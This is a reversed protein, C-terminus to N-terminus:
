VAMPRSNAEKQALYRMLIDRLSILGKLEKGDM